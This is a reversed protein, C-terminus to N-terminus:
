SCAVSFLYPEYQLKSGTSEPTSCISGRDVIKAKETFSEKGSRWIKVSMSLKTRSCAESFLCPEYQLKLTKVKLLAVYPVEILSKLKRTSRGKVQDGLNKSFHIVRDLFM